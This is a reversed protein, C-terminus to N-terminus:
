TPSGRGLLTIGDDELPRRSYAHLSALPVLGVRRGVDAGGGFRECQAILDARGDAEMQTFSPMGVFGDQTAIGVRAAYGVLESAFSVSFSGMFVGSADRAFGLRASLARRGGYRQVPSYLGARRLQHTRPFPVQALAEEEIRTPLAPLPRGEYVLSVLGDLLEGFRRVTRWESAPLLGLKRAFEKPGGHIRVAARLDTSLSSLRPMVNRQEYQQQRLVQLVYEPNEWREDRRRRKSRPVLPPPTAGVYRALRRYGDRGRLAEIRNALTPDAGRLVSRSPLSVSPHPWGNRVCTITLASALEALDRM